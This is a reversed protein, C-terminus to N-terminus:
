WLTCSNTSYTPRITIKRGTTWEFHVQDNTRVGWLHLFFNTSIRLMRTYAWNQSGSYIFWFLCNSCFWLVCDFIEFWLSDVVRNKPNFLNLFERGFWKFDIWSQTPWFKLISVDFLFHCTTVCVYVSVGACVCM